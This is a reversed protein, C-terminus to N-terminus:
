HQPRSVILYPINKSVDWEKLASSVAAAIAKSTGSLLESLFSKETEIGSIFIAIRDISGNQENPMIKGNWHVILVEFANSKKEAIRSRHIERSTRMTEYGLVLEM